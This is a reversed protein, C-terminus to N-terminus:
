AWKVRINKVQCPCFGYFDGTKAGATEFHGALLPMVGKAARGQTYYHSPSIRCRHTACDAFFALFLAKAGGDVPADARLAAALLAFDGEVTGRVADVQQLGALM